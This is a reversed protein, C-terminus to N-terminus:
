SQQETYQDNLQPGISKDGLQLRMHARTAGRRAPMHLCTSTSTPVSERLRVGVHDWLALSCAYPPLNGHACTQTHKHLNDLTRTQRKRVHVSQCHFLAVTQM